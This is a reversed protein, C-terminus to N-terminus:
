FQFPPAIRGGGEYIPFIVFKYTLLEFLKLAVRFLYPPSEFPTFLSFESTPKLIVFFVFKTM